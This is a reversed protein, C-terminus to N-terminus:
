KNRMAIIFWMERDEDSQSISSISLELDKYGIFMTKLPTFDRRYRVYVQYGGILESQNAQVTRDQGLPKINANTALDVTKVEPLTGGSGDTPTTYHYFEIRSNLKGAKM